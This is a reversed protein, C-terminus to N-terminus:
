KAQKLSKKSFDNNTFGNKFTYNKTTLVTTTGTQHNTIVQEGAKWYKDYQLSYKKFVQTKLPSNKRDYYEIKLPIFRQSDVWVEQRGYGSHKSVPSYEVVHTMIGELNEDKIYRYTYGSAEFSAMDEYTFQTGMFPQLMANNVIQKVRRLAPLYIWMEHLSNKHTFSLFGTGRVNSPSVFNMLMKDGDGSVELTRMHLTYTSKAGRRDTSVMTMDASIDGWGTDNKEVNRAISLGKDEATQAFATSTLVLIGIIAVIVKKM